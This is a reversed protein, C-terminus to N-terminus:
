KIIIKNVRTFMINFNFVLITARGSSLDRLNSVKDIKVNVCGRRLNQQIENLSLFM